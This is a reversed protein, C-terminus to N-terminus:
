RYCSLAIVAPADVASLANPRSSSHIYVIYVNYKYINRMLRLTYVLARLCPAHSHAFLRSARLEDRSRSADTTYIPYYLPYYILYIRVFRREHGPAYLWMPWLSISM